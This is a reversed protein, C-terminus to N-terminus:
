EESIEDKYKETDSDVLFILGPILSFMSYTMGNIFEAFNSRVIFFLLIVIGTITLVWGGYFQGNVKEFWSLFHGLISIILLILIPILTELDTVPNSLFIDSFLPYFFAVSYFFLALIGFSRGVWKLYKVPM